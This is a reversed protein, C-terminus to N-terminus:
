SRPAGTDSPINSGTLGLDSKLLGNVMAKGFQSLMYANWCGTNIIYRVFWETDEGNQCYYGEIGLKLTKPQSLIAGTDGYVIHKEIKDDGRFLECYHEEEQHVVINATGNKNVLWV